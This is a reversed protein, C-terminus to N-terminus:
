FTIIKLQPIRNFHRKNETIIDTIGNTIAIGAILCDTEEIKKGKNILRGSIEGAKLSARRDLPLVTIKSLMSFIKELHSYAVKNLIHAGTILEFVNIETTFLPIGAEISKKIINIANKKGRLFEILVTTDALM